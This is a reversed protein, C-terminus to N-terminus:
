NNTSEWFDDIFNEILRLDFYQLKTIGISGEYPTEGFGVNGMVNTGKGQSLVDALEYTNINNSIINNNACTEDEFIGYKMKPAAPWNFVANGTITVGKTKNKVIVGSKVSSRDSVTRPMKRFERTGQVILTDKDREFPNISGNDIINNASVTGWRVDNLVIGHGESWCFINSSINIEHSSNVVIADDQIQYSRCGSVLVSNSHNGIYFAPKKSQYVTVDRINVVLANECYVGYGGQYITCNDINNTVFDGGRGGRALQKLRIASGECAAIRCNKVDSLFTNESLLIGDEKMGVIQVDSVLCDGCDELIIGTKSVNKDKISQIVLNIIAVKDIGKLVIANGSQHNESIILMTGTGSGELTTYSPLSLSNHLIYKGKHLFVKGGKSLKETAWNIAEEANSSKYLINQDIEGRVVFADQTPIIELDQDLVKLNTKCSIAVALLVLWIITKMKMM